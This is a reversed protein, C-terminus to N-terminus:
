PTPASAPQRPELMQLRQAAERGWCTDGFREVLERMRALGSRRTIANQASLSQIELDALGFIAEPLADGTQLIPILRGLARARDQPEPIANAWAVLLNDHLLSDPYTQMLRLLQDGYRPRHSDLAALEQLPRNGYKPDNRNNAILEALQRCELLYPAPEFNLSSEPPRRRWLSVGAPQSSAPRNDRAFTFTSSALELAEDILGTRLKLQALRLSAAIALPSDPFRKRLVSWVPESQVHPFDGYFERRPNPAFLRREDMRTDLILAQLFFVNQLYRSEPYDAIFTNCAEYAAARDALTNLLLRRVVRRKTERLEELDESWIARFDTALRADPTREITEAILSWLKRETDESALVPTFRKSRPGFENELVRYSLEDAGVSFFFLAVPAIFMAALVPSVAGPRYNVVHAIALVLASIACAALISLVWPAALLTKQMPSPYAALQEPTGRTSMYLYLLVPLLGVLVSVFRFNIRLPPSTALVCSLVCTFAMWPMHGFVFMAIIFPIASPLRYLIAVLIPVTIMTAVLMGLVIAHVPTQQVSIPELIFDILNTSNTSWFRLPALYGELTFDIAKAVHLWHTFACMGCYLLFNISLLLTARIRYKPETRTWVDVFVATRRKRTPIEPATAGDPLALDPHPSTSEAASM